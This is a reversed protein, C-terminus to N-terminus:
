KCIPIRREQMYIQFEKLTAYNESQFTKYNCPGFVTPRTRVFRSKAVQYYYRLKQKRRRRLYDGPRRYNATARSHPGITSLHYVNHLYLKSERNTLSSQNRFSQTVGSDHTLIRCGSTTYLFPGSFLNFLKIRTM